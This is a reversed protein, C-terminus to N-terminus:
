GSRTSTRDGGCSARPFLSFQWSGCWALRKLFQAMLATAHTHVQTVTVGRAAMWAFVASMRYVGVPDFKAGLFRGGDAPYAIAKGPAAALAGFEAFWGTDRTSGVPRIHRSRVHRM